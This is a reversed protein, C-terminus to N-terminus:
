PSGKCKGRMEGIKESLVVHFIFKWIKRHNENDGDLKSIAVSLFEKTRCYENIVNM